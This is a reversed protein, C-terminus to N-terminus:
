GQCGPERWGLARCAREALGEDGEDGELVPTVAVLDWARVAGDEGGTVVWGEGAAARARAARPSSAAARAWM